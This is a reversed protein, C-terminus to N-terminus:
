LLVFPMGGTLYLVVCMKFLPLKKNTHIWQLTLWLSGSKSGQVPVRYKTIPECLYVPRNTYVVCFLDPLYPDISLTQQVVIEVTKTEKIWTDLVFACFNNKRVSAFHHLIFFSGCKIFNLDAKYVATHCPVISISVWRIGGWTVILIENYFALKIM